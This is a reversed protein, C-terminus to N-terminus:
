ISLSLESEKMFEQRCMPCELKKLNPICSSCIYHKCKTIYNSKEYCICCEGSGKEGICFNDKFYYEKQNITQYGELIDDIYFCKSIIKNESFTFSFGNRKGHFFDVIKLIVHKGVSNKGFYIINGEIRNNKYNGFKILNGETDYSYFHNPQYPSYLRIKRIIGNQYYTTKKYKVDQHFSSIQRIIGNVDFHYLNGHKKDDQYFGFSKINNKKDFLYFNGNKKGQFFFCIEKISQNDYYSIYKGHEKNQYFNQRSYISGDPYFKIEKGHKDDNKFFTKQNPKFIKIIHKEKKFLIIKIFLFQNLVIM